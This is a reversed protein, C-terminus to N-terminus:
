AGADPTIHNCPYITGSIPKSCGKEKERKVKEEDVEDKRQYFKWESIIGRELPKIKSVKYYPLVWFLKIKSFGHTGLPFISIM